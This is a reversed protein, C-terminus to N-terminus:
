ALGKGYRLYPNNLAAMREYHKRTLEDAYPMTRTHLENAMRMPPPRDGPTQFGAATMALNAPHGRFVDNPKAYSSRDAGEVNHVKFSESFKDLGTMALRMPPPMGEHDRSLGMATLMQNAPHYKFPSAGCLGSGDQCSAGQPKGASLNDLGGVDGGSYRRQLGVNNAAELKKKAGKQKTSKVKRVEKAVNPDRMSEENVVYSGPPVSDMISDSTGTGPGRVYGTGEGDPTVLYEGNSLRVPVEGGEAFGDAYMGSIFRQDAPDAVRRPNAKIVHAMRASNPIITSAAAPVRAPLGLGGEWPAVVQELAQEEYSPFDPSVSQRQYGATQSVPARLNIDQGQPIQSRMAEMQSGLDIQGKLYALMKQNQAASGTYKDDGFVQSYVAKRQAFSSDVGMGKMEDVVSRKDRKVKGGNALAMSGFLAAAGLAWGVPNWANAAAATAVGGELAAATGAALTGAEAGAGLLAADQAALMAAQSGAGTASLGTATTGQAAAATQAAKAAEISANKAVGAQGSQYLNYAKEGQRAMGIGQQAPSPTPASPSGSVVGAANPDSMQMRRSVQGGQAYGPIEGGDKKGYKFYMDAGMMAASGLGSMANADAQANQAMVGGMQGFGSAIQNGQNMSETQMDNLLKWKNVAATTQKDDIATRMNNMAGTRMAAGQLGAGAMENAMRNPNFAAGYRSMNRNVAGMTQGFSSMADTNAQGLMRNQYAPDSYKDYAAMAGGLGGAMYPDRMADTKKLQSLNYDLMRGQAATAENSSGGGGGGNYGPHKLLANFKYKFSM